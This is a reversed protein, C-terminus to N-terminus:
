RLSLPLIAVAACVPGRIIVSAVEPYCRTATNQKEAFRRVAGTEAAALMAGCGSLLNCGENRKLLPSVLIPLTMKGKRTTSTVAYMVYWSHTTM